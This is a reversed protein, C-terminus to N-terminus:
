RVVAQGASKLLEALWVLSYSTASAPDDVVREIQTLCESLQGVTFTSPEVFLNYLQEQPIAWFFDKDLLVEGGEVNELHGLLIESAQRLLVLPVRIRETM